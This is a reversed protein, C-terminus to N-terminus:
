HSKGLNQPGTRLWVYLKILTVKRTAPDTRLWVYLKILTVKPITHNYADLFM